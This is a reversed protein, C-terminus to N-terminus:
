ISLTHTLYGNGNTQPIPLLAVYIRHKTALLDLFPNNQVFNCVNYILRTLKEIANDTGKFHRSISM